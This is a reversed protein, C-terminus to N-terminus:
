TKNGGPSVNVVSTLKAPQDVRSYKNIEYYLPQKLSDGM